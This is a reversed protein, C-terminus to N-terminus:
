LPMPWSASSLPMKCGILLLPPLSLRARKRLRSFIPNNGLENSSKPLMWFHTLERVVKRFTKSTPRLCISARARWVKSFPWFEGQHCASKRCYSCLARSILFSFCFTSGGPVFYSKKARWKFNLFMGVATLLLDIHKPKLFSWRTQRHYNFLCCWSFYLLLGKKLRGASSTSFLM